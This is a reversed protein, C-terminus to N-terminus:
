ATIDLMNQQPPATLCDHTTQVANVIDVWCTDNPPVADRNPSSSGGNVNMESVNVEFLDLFHESDPVVYDKPIQRGSQWELSHSSISNGGQLLEDTSDGVLLQREITGPANNLLEDMLAESLSQQLSLLFWNTPNPPQAETKIPELGIPHVAITQPTTAILLDGTDTSPELPIEEPQETPIHRTVTSDDVTVQHPKSIPELPQDSSPASSLASDYFLRDSEKQRLLEQPADLNHSRLSVSQRTITLLWLAISGPSSKKSWGVITSTPNETPENVLNEAERLHPALFRYRHLLIEITEGLGPTPVLVTALRDDLKHGSEGGGNPQRVNKAFLRDITLEDGGNTAQQETSPHALKNRFYDHKFSATLDDDDGNPGIRWNELLPQFLSSHQSLLTLVIPVMLLPDVDSQQGKRPWGKIYVESVKEQFLQSLRHREIFGTLSVWPLDGWQEITQFDASLTHAIAVDIKHHHNPRYVDLVQQVYSVLSFALEVTQETAIRYYLADLDEQTIYGQITPSQLIEWVVDFDSTTKEHLADWILSGTLLVHKM